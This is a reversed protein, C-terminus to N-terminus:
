KSAKKNKIEELYEKRVALVLAAHEKNYDLYGVFINEDKQPSLDKKTPNSMGIRFPQIVYSLIDPHGSHKWTFLDKLYGLIGLTIDSWDNEDINVFLEYNDPLVTGYQHYFLGKFNKKHFDEIPTQGFSVGSIKGLDNISLRQKGSEKRLISKVAKETIKQNEKRKAIVGIMNRFEEDTPSYKGNCESCAPVTIRNVKYKEDYGEFLNKAPIHEKTIDKADFEKRCNYCLQSKQHGRKAVTLKANIFDNTPEDIKRKRSIPKYSYKRRVKKKKSRNVSHYKNFIRRKRKTKNRKKMDNRKQLFVWLFVGSL